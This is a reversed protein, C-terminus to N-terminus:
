WPILRIAVLVAVLALVAAATLERRTASEFAAGWSALVAGISFAAFVFGHVAADFSGTVIMVITTALSTWALMFSVWGVAALGFVPLFMSLRFQRGNVTVAPSAFPRTRGQHWSLLSTRSLAFWALSTFAVLALTRPTTLVGSFIWVGVVWCAVIATLWAYARYARM